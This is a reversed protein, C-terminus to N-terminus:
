GFTAVVSASFRDFDEPAVYVLTAGYQPGVAVSTAQAAPKDKAILSSASNGLLIAAVVSVKIVRM